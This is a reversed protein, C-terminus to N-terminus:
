DIDATNSALIGFCVVIHCNGEKNEETGIIRLNGYCPNSVAIRRDDRNKGIRKSKLPKVTGNDKNDNIRNLILAFNADYINIISAHENIVLYLM